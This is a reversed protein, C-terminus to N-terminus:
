RRGAKAEDLLAQMLRDYLERALAMVDRLRRSFRRVNRFDQLRAVRSLEIGSEPLTNVAKGSGIRIAKEVSRLFAYLEKLTTADHRPIVEGDALADLIGTTDQIRIRAHDRGYHAAYSQAIFDIDVTGGSGSKVNLMGGYRKASAREITRRLTLLENVEGPSFPAGYVFRHIIDMVQPGLRSNGAIFRARVLALREWVSARNKCYREYERASIALPSGGGEPRLRADVDYIKDSGGGGTILFLIHQALATSFEAHEYEEATSNASDYVFILDLDSGFDM